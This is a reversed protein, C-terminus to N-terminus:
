TPKGKTTREARALGGGKRKQEARADAFARCVKSLAGPQRGVRWDIMARALAPGRGQWHNNFAKRHKDCCFEQAANATQFEGKCWLCVVTFWAKAQGAIGRRRKQWLARCERSCCEQGKRPRRIPKGCERCEAVQNGAESVPPSSVPDM